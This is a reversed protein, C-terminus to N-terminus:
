QRRCSLLVTYLERVTNRSCTLNFPHRLHHPMGKDDSMKELVKKEDIHDEIWDIMCQVVNAYENM